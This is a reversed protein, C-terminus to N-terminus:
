CLSSIAASSTSRRPRSSSPPLRPRRRYWWPRRRRRWSSNWMSLKLKLSAFGTGVARCFWSRPDRRSLRRRTRSPLYRRWRRGTTQVASEPTAPPASCASRCAPCATERRVTYPSKSIAQGPQWRICCGSLYSCSPPVLAEEKVRSLPKTSPERRDGPKRTAIPIAVVAAAKGNACHGETLPESVTARCRPIQM